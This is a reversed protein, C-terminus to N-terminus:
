KESEANKQKVFNWSTRSEELEKRINNLLKQKEALEAKLIQESSHLKKHQEKIKSVYFWTSNLEDTIGCLKEEHFNVQSCLTESIHRMKNMQEVLTNKELIM